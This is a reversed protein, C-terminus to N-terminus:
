RWYILWRKTSVRKAALPKGFKLLYLAKTLVSISTKWNDVMELPKFEVGRDPVNEVLYKILNRAGWSKKDTKSVYVNNVLETRYLERRSFLYAVYEAEHKTIHSASKM